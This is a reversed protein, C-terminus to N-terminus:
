RGGWQCCHYLFGVYGIPGVAGHAALCALVYLILNQFLFFQAARAYWLWATEKVNEKMIEWDM